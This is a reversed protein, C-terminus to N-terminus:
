AGLDDIVEVVVARAESRRLALQYGKLRVAIPDGLPAKRKVRVREGRVVGMEMLRRRVEPQGRVDLVRAEGGVPVRDLTMAGPDIPAAPATM